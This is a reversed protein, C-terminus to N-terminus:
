AQAAPAPTRKAAPAAAGAKATQAAPPAAAEMARRIAYVVYLGFAAALLLATLVLFLGDVTGAQGTALLWAASGLGVVIMLLSFLFLFGRDSM